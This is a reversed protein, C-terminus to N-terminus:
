DTLSSQIKKNKSWNKVCDPILRNESWDGGGIENGLGDYLSGSVVIDGPVLVVGRTSSDKTGASGSLVISVDSGKAESTLGAFTTVNSGLVITDDAGDVLIAGQLTNSEVRFDPNTLGDDNIIVDSGAM